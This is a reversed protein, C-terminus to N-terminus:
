GRALSRLGEYPHNAFWGEGMVVWLCMGRYPRGKHAGGCIMGFGELFRTAGVVGKDGLAWWGGYPRNAFRGEGMVVWLCMGRLPAGQPCGGGGAMGTGEFFRAGGVLGDRTPADRTPARRVRGVDGGQWGM